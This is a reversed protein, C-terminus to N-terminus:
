KMMTMKATVLYKGYSIRYVYVDSGVKTGHLDTGDWQTEYIGKGNVSIKKVCVLQGKLNYIRLEADEHLDELVEFRITTTPNFPNPINSLLRIATPPVTETEDHVENPPDPTFSTFICLVGFDISLDIIEQRLTIAEPSTPYLSYYEVVLQDIKAAAWVKPIFSNISDPANVMDYDYNFDHYIGEHLGSVSVNVTQPTTYRGVLRYQMGGYVSPFPYPLVETVSGAPTISLEPNGLIPNRMEDYFTTITNVIESSELFVAAGHHNQALASLLQYHVESGVGFCHIIPDTHNNNIRNDINTIIQYPDTVGVTPQGDSLLLICNRVGDPVILFQCIARDLADHLNTGNLSPMTYNNIYSIAESINNLTRERLSGWLPRVVHDFLIVNFMDNPQLHNIVYCAAAKANVLRNEFSMSGSVDIVINLRAAFVTDAPITNEEMSYLFFGPAGEDPAEDLKTSLGWSSMVSTSLQLVCRYNNVAVANNIHYSGHATNDTHSVQAIIDM